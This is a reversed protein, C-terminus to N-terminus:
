SAQIQRGTQDGNDVIARRAVTGSSSLVSLDTIAGGRDADIRVRLTHAADTIEHTWVQAFAANPLILLALGAAYSRYKM